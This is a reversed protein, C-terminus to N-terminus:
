SHAIFRASICLENFGAKVADTITSGFIVRSIGSWHIASFCMPCPETTAYMVCGSLDYTELKKSAMRIANVEAHCTADKKFVTNGAVAVVRGSKVVCAGFPGGDLTRISKQAARVALRMYKPDLGHKM